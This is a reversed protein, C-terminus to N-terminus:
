KGGYIFALVLMAAITLPVGLLVIGCGLQYMRLEYMTTANWPNDPVEKELETSSSPREM